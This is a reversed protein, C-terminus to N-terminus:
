LNALYALAKDHAAQAGSCSIKDDGGQLESLRAITPSIFPGPRGCACKQDWTVTVEDGSVGGGWYTEASLDM